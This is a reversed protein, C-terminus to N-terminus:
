QTVSRNSAPKEVDVLYVFARFAAYYALVILSYGHPMPAYTLAALGVGKSKDM